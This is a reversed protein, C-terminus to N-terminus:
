RGALFGTARICFSHLDGESRDAPPIITTALRSTQDANRPHATLRGSKMRDAIPVTVPEPRHIARRQVAQSFPANGRHPVARTQPRIMRQRARGLGDM